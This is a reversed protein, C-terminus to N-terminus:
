VTKKGKEHVTISLQYVNGARSFCIMKEQNQVDINCYKGGAIKFENCIIVM